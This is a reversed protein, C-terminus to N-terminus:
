AWRCAALRRLTKRSSVSAGSREEWIKQLSPSRPKRRSASACPSGPGKAAVLQGGAQRAPLRSDRDERRRGLHLRSYRAGTDSALIQLNEQTLLLHLAEECRDGVEIETALLGAVLALIVSM